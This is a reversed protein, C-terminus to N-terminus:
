ARSLTWPGLPLFLVSATSSHHLLNCSASTRTLNRENM